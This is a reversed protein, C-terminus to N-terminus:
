DAKLPLVHMYEGASKGLQALKRSRLALGRGVRGHWKHVGYVFGVEGPPATLNRCSVGTIREVVDGHRRVLYDLPTRIVV